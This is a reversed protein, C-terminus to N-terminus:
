FQTMLNNLSERLVQIRSETSDSVKDNMSSSTDVMIIVDAGKKVPVGTASLEVKAIGSSQFDVGEATKGVRVAGEHPYEPYNNRKPTM